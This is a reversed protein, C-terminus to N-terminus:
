HNVVGEFGERRFAAAIRELDEETQEGLHRYRHGWGIKEYKTRALRNYPMLHVPGAYGTSRLFGAIGEVCSTHTNFGPILPVRPLIRASGARELIRRFNAGIRELGVGTLERHVEADHHKVDFLFLDVAGVLAEVLDGPFYGCTEVATHIGGVHLRELVECLFAAQLTPEGGSFTVGGGSSEYFVRDAELIGVLEEVSIKRGIREAARSPCAEACGGCLTCRHRDREVGEPTMRRAGAPCGEVCAGCRTCKEALYAIQPESRQSEPNHCWVCRLPCGKLYVTTRIGPGDYVAFAQIDFIIGDM